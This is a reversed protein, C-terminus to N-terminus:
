LCSLGCTFGVVFCANDVMILLQQEKRRMSIRINMGAERCRPAEMAPRAAGNMESMGGVCRLKIALELLVTCVIRM